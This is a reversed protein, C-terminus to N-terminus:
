ANSGPEFQRGRLIVALVSVDAPTIGSVRLAQGLSRPRIASLKERAEKRLQSIRHYDM